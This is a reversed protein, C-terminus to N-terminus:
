EKNELAQKRDVIAKSMEHDEFRSLLFENAEGLKEAPLYEEFTEAYANKLETKEERLKKNEAQQGAKGKIHGQIYEENQTIVEELEHIEAQQCEAGARFIALENNLRTAWDEALSNLHKCYKVYKDGDWVVWTAGVQYSHQKEFNERLKDEPTLFTLTGGFM